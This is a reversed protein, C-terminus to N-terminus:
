IAQNRKNRIFDVDEKTLQVGDRLEATLKFKRFKVGEIEYEASEVLGINVLLMSDTLTAIYNAVDIDSPAIGQLGILTKITTKHVVPQDKAAADASAKAYQSSGAPAAVTSTIEEGKVDLQVLSVSGPMNNTLCALIVSKPVPEILEATMLATKMMSKRKQTIQDLQVIQQQAAQMKQNLITMENSVAKQRMKIMTFTAGIGGMIVAFLVLCMINARSSERQEVYDDPVFNINSM